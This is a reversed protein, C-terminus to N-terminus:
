KVLSARTNQGVVADVEIMSLKQFKRVADATLSGFGGDVELGANIRYNLLLQVVKVLDGNSGFTVLPLAKITQETQNKPLEKTDGYDPCAFGSFYKSGIPYSKRRVSGPNGSNGEITYILGDEVKEVIGIHDTETNGVSDTDASGQWDFYALDGPQPIFNDDEVFRGLKEFGKIMACCSLNLPILATIGCEIAMASVFCACWPSSYPMAVYGCFSNFEDAFKICNDVGLYKRAQAVFNRRKEQATM